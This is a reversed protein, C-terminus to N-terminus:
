RFGRSALSRSPWRSPKKPQEPDNAKRLRRAKAIRKIDSATKAKHHRACLPEINLDVDEGGLELPLIHDLELGDTVQCGIRACQHGHAALVRERRAPSVSLRPTAEQPKRALIRAIDDKAALVKAERERRKAEARLDAAERRLAPADSM